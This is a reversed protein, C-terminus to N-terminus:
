GQSPEPKAARTLISELSHLDADSLKSLDSQVQLPSGNPGSIEQSSKDRQDLFQIGLWKLMNPNGGLAVQFQKRRLSVKGEDFGINYADSFGERSTLTDISVELISAIERQTCGISALKRVVTLDVEKRPRGNPQGTPKRAM